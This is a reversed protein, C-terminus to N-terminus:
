RFYKRYSKGRGSYSTKDMNRIAEQIHPAVLLEEPIESIELEKKNGEKDSIHLKFGASHGGQVWSSVPFKAEPWIGKIALSRQLATWLNNRKKMMENISEMAETITTM